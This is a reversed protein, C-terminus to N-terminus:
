RTELALCISFLLLRLQRNQSRIHWTALVLMRIVPHVFAYSGFEACATFGTIVLAVFGLIDM